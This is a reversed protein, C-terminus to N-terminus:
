KSSSNVLFLISHIFEFTVNGDLLDNSGINVIVLGLENCAKLATAHNQLKQFPNLNKTLILKDPITGPKIRNILKCLLLSEKVATFLDDNSPNIPIVHSLDPDDRLLENIYGAFSVREEVPYSHYAM